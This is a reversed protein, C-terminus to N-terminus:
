ILCYQTPYQFNSPLSGLRPFIELVENESRASCAPGFTVAARKGFHSSDMQLCEYCVFGTIGEEAAKRALQDQAEPSFLGWFEIKSVQKVEGGIMNQM